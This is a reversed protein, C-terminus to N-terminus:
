QFQQLFSNLTEKYADGVPIQTKGFVITGNKIVSIKSKQVLFSRHVRIFRRSDLQQEMAKLTAITSIETNDDLVFRVYDRQAEVFLVRDLDVRYRRRKSLVFIANSSASATDEEATVAELAPTENQEFWVVAREATKQFEAFAIPKLLYDFASVKYGEIAYESYATTFVIKTKAPLTAAFELGNMNPMQIDLFLLDVNDDLLHKQAEKASSYTGVLQLFDIRKVYSSLLGIALPEDDIIACRLQRM